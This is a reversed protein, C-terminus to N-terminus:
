LIRNLIDKSRNSYSKAFRSYYLSKYKLWDSEFHLMEKLVSFLNNVNDKNLKLIVNRTEIYDLLQANYLKNIFDVSSNGINGGMLTTLGFSKAYNLTNQVINHMDISVVDQKGHGFSKTLDTRGVVIGSLMKSSPSQLITELNNVAQKSEINIYFNIKDRQEKITYKNVSEMFKQLAFESEIMPAVISDTGINICNIFDTIAECGGIKVSLSLGAVDCIRRMKVVDDFLVGEDEFSQKVGVVGSDKLKKLKNVLKHMNNEKGREIKLITILPQNLHL